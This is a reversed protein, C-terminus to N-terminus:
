SGPISGGERGIGHGGPPLGLSQRAIGGFVFEKQQCIRTAAITTVGTGPLFAQLHLDAISESEGHGHAVIRRATRFPVGNQATYAANLNKESLLSPESPFGRWTLRSVRPRFALPVTAHRFLLVWPFVHVSPPRCSRHSLALFRFGAGAASEVGM